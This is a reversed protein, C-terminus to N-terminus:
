KLDKLIYIIEHLKNVEVVMSKGKVRHTRALFDSLCKKARITDDKLYQSYEFIIDYYRKYEDKTDDKTLYKLIQTYNANRISRKHKAIMQKINEEKQKRREIARQTCVYLFENVDKAPFQLIEIMFQRLSYNTGNEMNYEARHEKYKGILSYCM